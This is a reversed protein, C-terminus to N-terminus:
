SSSTLYYGADATVEGFGRVVMVMLLVVPLLVVINAHGQWLGYLITGTSYLISWIPSWPLMTPVTSWHPDIKM